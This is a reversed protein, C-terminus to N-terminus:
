RAVASAAPRNAAEAACFAVLGALVRALAANAAAVGGSPDDSTTAETEDFTRAALVRRSRVDVLQATLSLEIRNPRQAVDQQLRVLEVSLRLDPLVSSPPQVVSRFAGSQALSRAVIPGLMRAPADAWRHNAYYDLEFPRKVYAMQPTDFGPWARPAAVELVLDRPPGPVNAIAPAGLVHLQPSERPAPLISTCGAAVAVALLTACRLCGARLKRDFASTRDASPMRRHEGTCRM